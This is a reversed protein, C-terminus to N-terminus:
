NTFSSRFIDFRFLRRCKLNRINLSKSQLFSKCAPPEGTSRIENFECFLSFTPLWLDVHELLETQLPHVRIFGDLVKKILFPFLWARWLCDLHDKLANWRKGSPSFFFVRVHFLKPITIKLVRVQNHPDKATGLRSVSIGRWKTLTKM